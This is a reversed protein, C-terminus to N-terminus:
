ISESIALYLLLLIGTSPSLLMLLLMLFLTCGGVVVFPLTFGSVQIHIPTSRDCYSHYAFTSWVTCYMCMGSGVQVHASFMVSLECTTNYEHWSHHEAINTMAKKQQDDAEFICM